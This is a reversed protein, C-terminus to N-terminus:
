FWHGIETYFLVTLPHFITRNFMSFHGDLHNWIVAPNCYANFSSTSGGILGEAFVKYSERLSSIWDSRFLRICTLSTCSSHYDCFVTTLSITKNECTSLLPEIHWPLLFASGTDATLEVAEIIWFARAGHSSRPHMLSSVAFSISCQIIDLLPTRAPFSIHHLHDATRHTLLKFTQRNPSSADSSFPSSPLDPRIRPNHRYPICTSANSLPLTPMLM